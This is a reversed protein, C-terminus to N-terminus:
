KADAIQGPALNSTFTESTEASIAGPLAFLLILNIFKFRDYFQPQVMDVLFWGILGVLIFFSISMYSLNDTREGWSLNRFAAHFSLLYFWSIFILGLIGIGAGLRLITNHVGIIDLSTATIEAGMGSIPHTRFAQWAEVMLDIRGSDPEYEGLEQAAMEMFRDAVIIPKTKIAVFLVSGMIAFLVFFSVSKRKIGCRPVFVMFIVSEVAIAIATARSATALGGLVILGVFLIGFFKVRLTKGFYILWLSIPFAVVLMFGFNNPHGMISGFRGAHPTTYELNLSLLRDITATMGTQFYYDSIAPILPVLAAGVLVVLMWKIKRPTDLLHIGTPIWIGFLFIYKGIVTAAASLDSSNILSLTAGFLFVLLPKFFPNNHVFVQVLSQGQHLMRIVLLVVAVLYFTDSGNFFPAVPRFTTLSIILTGAYFFM